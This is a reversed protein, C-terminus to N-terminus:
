GRRDHSDTVSEDHGTGNSMFVLGMLTSMLLMSAGVGLGTAIYFHIPLGPLTVWLYVLVLAVTFLSIWSMLRMIRRYRGWAFAASEPDDLPSPQPM